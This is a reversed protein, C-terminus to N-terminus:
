ADRLYVGAGYGNYVIRFGPPFVFRKGQQIGSQYLGKDTVVWIRAHRSLVARFDGQSLLPTTGTPTDTIKGNHEFLYLARDVSFFYDLHGAYYRTIIAPSVSIVIDGERWHRKIYEGASDYDIYRHHYAWGEMRSIFLNYGSLPLMPMILLAACFLATSFGMLVRLPNWASRREREQAAPALRQYVFKWLARLWNLLVYTGLLYYAPFLPYIYRDATMTFVLILTLLSVLLFLACYRARTDGRYFAWGCGLLALLSNLTIVPLKKSLILPFFFLKLYFPVNETGPQLFPQQSQDTGLPLPHSFHVVALQALIVGVGLGAAIWWHREFFIAPLRRRRDYSVMFVCLVLAPFVIFSEEHSLYTVLLALVALYIRYSQGPARAAKYFLYMTVIMLMQAQEYMRMSRGWLLVFPSFALMATTLLAVQKDFFRSAVYYLLPLSVLYAIISPLRLLGNQEGFIAISLALVYSYLEGKPYLFGSPMFPLGHALIGKAAYYSTLEDQWYPEYSLNYCILPLAILMIVVLGWHESLWGYAHARLGSSAIHERIATGSAQIRRAFATIALHGPLPQKRAALWLLVYSAGALILLLLGWQWTYPFPQPILSESDLIVLLTELALAPLYALSLVALAIRGTPFYRRLVVLAMLLWLALVVASSWFITQLIRILPVVNTNRPSASDPLYVTKSTGPRGISFPASWTHLVESDGNQWGSQPQRSAHWDTNAADPAIWSKRGHADSTLMDLSLATNLTELGVLANSTGPATVHIAITNNGGHLYPSIDYIGLGLGGRYQNVADEDPVLNSTDDLYDSPQQQIIPVQENWAILLSGNIYVSSPGTAIVRLWTRETGPPLTFPHVFYADHGAGTSMWRQALPREYLAQNITLRPTFDPPTAPHSPAWDSADFGYATWPAATIAYRHNTKVGETTAQWRGDTGYYVMNEGHTVGFSARVGAPGHDPNNVRIAIVNPGPVLMSLVDYIYARPAEGRTTELANGGIFTGNIYARFQQNAAIIIFAADPVTILNAVYRFSAVPANGDAAQIWQAGQWRPEFSSTQPVLLSQYAFWSAGLCSCLLLLITLFWIGAAGRRHALRPAAPLVQTEQSDITFM